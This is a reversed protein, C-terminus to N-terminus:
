WDKDIRESEMPDVYTMLTEVGPIMVELALTFLM